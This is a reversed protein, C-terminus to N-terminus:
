GQEKIKKTIMGKLTRHDTKGLFGNKALKEMERKAYDTEGRKIAAKLEKVNEVVEPNTKEVSLTTEDVSALEEEGSINTNSIGDDEVLSPQKPKFLWDPTDTWGKELGKLQDDFFVRGGPAEQEHYRMTRAKQKSPETAM